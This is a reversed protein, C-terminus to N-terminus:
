GYEEWTHVKTDESAATYTAATVGYIAAMSEITVSAGSALALTNTSLATITSDAGLYVTVTQYNVITIRRRNGRPPAIMQASNSVNVHAPLWTRAALEDNSM